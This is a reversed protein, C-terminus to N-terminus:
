LRNPFSIDKRVYLTSKYTQASPVTQPSLLTCCNGRDTSKANHLSLRYHVVTEETQVSPVTWTSLSWLMSYNRGSLSHNVQSKEGQFSTTLLFCHFTFFHKKWCFSVLKAQTSANSRDQQRTEGNGSQKSWLKSRPVPWSSQAEAHQCVCRYAAFYHEVSLEVKANHQVSNVNVSLNCM